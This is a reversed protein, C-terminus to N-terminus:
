PLRNVWFGTQLIIREPQPSDLMAKLGGSLDAFIEERTKGVWREEDIATIPGDHTIKM